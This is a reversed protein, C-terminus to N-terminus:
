AIPLWATHWGHPLSPCVYSVASLATPSWGAPCSWSPASSRTGEEVRLVSSGMRFDVLPEEVNGARQGHALMRAVLDYDENGPLDTYGGVAVASERRVVLSPHGIPNNM